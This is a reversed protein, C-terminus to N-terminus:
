HPSASFLYSLLIYLAISLPWSTLFFLAFYSCHSTSPPHPIETKYLIVLSPSQPCKPLLRFPTFSLKSINLRLVNWTSFDNAFIRSSPSFMSYNSFILFIPTVPALYARYLSILSILCSHTTGLLATQLHTPYKWNDSHNPYPITHIFILSM